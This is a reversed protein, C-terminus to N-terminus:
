FIAAAFPALDSRPELPTASLPPPTPTTSPSSICVVAPFHIVWGGDRQGLPVTEAGALHQNPM